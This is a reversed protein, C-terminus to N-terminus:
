LVYGADRTEWRLRRACRLPSILHEHLGFFDPQGRRTETADGIMELAVDVGTLEGAGECEDRASALDRVELRLAVEFDLPLSRDRVIRDEADVRHRLRDHADTQHHQPLLSANLEVVRHALEDRGPPILADEDAPIMRRPLRRGDFARHRDAIQEAVGRPERVAEHLPRVDVGGIALEADG